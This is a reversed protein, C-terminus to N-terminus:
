ASIPLSVLFETRGPKTFVRIDGGHAAIIRMVIDLGLGTGKGQAKTTFFPEFIRSKLEEPIGPGSDIVSVQLSKGDPRAWIHLKGGEPMVDIANDILNTWVQNLENVYAKVKPMQEAFELELEVQNGKLKHSLMTLTSKIGKRVDTKEMDTARDMHSYTKISDVLESIRSSAEHIEQVLRKSTLISDVWGMIPPLVEDPLQAALGDLEEETVGMELLTEVMSDGEEMGHDELWDILEDEREGREMMSLELVNGEAHKSTMFDIVLQIHRPDPPNQILDKVRQPAATFREELASATRRIAAAPNNLEHALGASLKGLAMLKEREQEQRAGTRARDTMLSVLAQVLEPHKQEMEKFHDKHLRYLRSTTSAIGDGTAATMRSYPLMGSVDGPSLFFIPRLHGSGDTDLKVVIKGELLTLLHDATDGRSFVEEGPQLWVEEGHDILWQLVEDSFESFLPVTRLDLISIM